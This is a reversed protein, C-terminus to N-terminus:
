SPNLAIPCAIPDEVKARPQELRAEMRNILCLIREDSISIGYLSDCQLLLNSCNEREIELWTHHYEELFWERTTQSVVDVTLHNEGNVVAGRRWWLIYLIERVRLSPIRNAVITGTALILCLTGNTELIQITQSCRMGPGWTIYLLFTRILMFFLTKRSTFGQVGVWQGSNDNVEHRKMYLGLVFRDGLM